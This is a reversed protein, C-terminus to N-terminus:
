IYSIDDEVFHIIQTVITDKDYYEFDELLEEFTISNDDKFVWLQNNYNM